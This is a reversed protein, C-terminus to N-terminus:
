LSHFTRKLQARELGNGPFFGLPTRKKPPIMNLYHKNKVIYLEFSHETM